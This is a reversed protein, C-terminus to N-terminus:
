QPCTEEEKLKNEINDILEDVIKKLTDRSSEIDDELKLLETYGTLNNSKTYYICKKIIENADNYIRESQEESDLLDQEQKKEKKM